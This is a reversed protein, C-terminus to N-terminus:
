PVYELGQRRWEVYEVREGILDVVALGGRADGPPRRMAATRNFFMALQTSNLVQRMTSLTQVAMERRREARKATSLAKFEKTALEAAHRRRMERYTKLQSANLDLRSTFTPLAPASYSGSADPCRSSPMTKHLRDQIM